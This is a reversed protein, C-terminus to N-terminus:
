CAYLAERIWSVFFYIFVENQITSFNDLTSLNQKIFIWGICSYIFNVCYKAFFLGAFNTLLYSIPEIWTVLNAFNVSNTNSPSNIEDIYLFNDPNIGILKNKKKEQYFLFNNGASNVSTYWLVVSLISTKITLVAKDSYILIFSYFRLRLFM